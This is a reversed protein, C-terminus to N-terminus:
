QAIQRRRLGFSVRVGPGDIAGDGFRPCARHGVIGGRNPCPEPAYLRYSDEDAADEAFVTAPLLVIAFVLAQEIRRV